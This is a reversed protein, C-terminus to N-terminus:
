LQLVVEPAIEPLPFVAVKFVLPAAAPVMVTVQLTVSLWPSVAEAVVRMVAVAAGDPGGDMLQEALGDVTVGPPPTVMREM